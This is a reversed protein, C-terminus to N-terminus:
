FFLIKAASVLVVLAFVIKVWRNGKEVATHAGAYGGVCTGLLLTAGHVYHIIGNMAFVGVAVITTVLAPIQNTAASEIMTFGFIMILVYKFLLGAGGGFFASWIVVLLYLFYGAYKMKTSIDKHVHGTGTEPRYFLLPLLAIIFVGILTQLLETEIGILATAGLLAGVLSIATFPLVYDWLIKGEKWYKYTATVKWGLSSFKNTAIAVQPPLGIFILFLISLLGGGGVMSSIFASAFGILFVAIFTEAPM